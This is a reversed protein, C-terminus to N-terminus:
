VVPNGAPPDERKEHAGPHPHAAAANVAAAKRKRSTRTVKKAAADPKYVMSQTRAKEPDDTTNPVLYHLAVGAVGLISSVFTAAVTGGPFVNLANLVWPGATVVVTLVNIVTKKIESFQM